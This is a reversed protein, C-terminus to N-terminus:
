ICSLAGAFDNGGLEQFASNWFGSIATKGWRVAIRRQESCLPVCRWEGGACFGGESESDPQPWFSGGFRLGVTAPNWRNSLYRCGASIVTCITEPFDGHREFFRSFFGTDACFDGVNASIRVSIGAYGDSESKRSDDARKKWGAATRVNSIFHRKNRSRYEAWVTNATRIGNGRGASSASQCFCARRYRSGWVIRCIRQSSRYVGAKVRIRQYGMYLYLKWIPFYGGRFFRIHRM